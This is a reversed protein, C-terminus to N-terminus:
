SVTRKRQSPSATLLIRSTGTTGRGLRGILGRGNGIVTCGPTFSGGVSISLGTTPLSEVRKMSTAMSCDGKLCGGVVATGRPSRIVILGSVFLDEGESLLPGRQM